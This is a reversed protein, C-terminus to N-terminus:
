RGPVVSSRSPPAPGDTRELLLLCNWTAVERLVPVRVIWRQSPYYRPRADLLRLGPRDRVMALIRGVYTPWLGVFPVNKRPEGKLRRWAALGLRPGLYHLPVIEHGGWPSYWNTWSVWAWGGPRLVREIEAFLVGASPTHELVNSCVVGDFAAEPFPLRRADAVASRRPRTRAAALDAMEMDVAVATAGAADLARSFAGSGCGLDLVLAGDVPFALEAVSREALAQSFPEPDRKEALFLRLLRARSAVKGPEAPRDPVAPM